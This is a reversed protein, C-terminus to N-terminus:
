FKRRHDQDSLTVLAQAFDQPYPATIVLPANQQPHALVIRWAHLAPRAIVHSADAGYLQDGLVPHGLAAAHARIQHTRGTHLQISVLTAAAFRQRVRFDTRAEKGTPDPLTRHKRGVNVRLPLSLKKEDWDPSGQLLAHYTKQVEHRAFQGNLHRHTEADRAFLVVGSTTKDLRHVVWLSGFEAELQGRLHPADKHWGEPIVALGAPKNVALLRDDQYLLTWHM